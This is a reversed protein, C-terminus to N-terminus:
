RNFVQLSETVGDLSCILTYTGAPQEGLHIRGKNVGAYAQMYRSIITKGEANMIRVQMRGEKEANFTMNLDGPSAVPNPSLSIVLKTTAKTNKYLKTESIVQKGDRDVVVINYYFFRQNGIKNDSFSYARESTSNGAAPLTAIETYDSGDASRRVSFYNTKEESTTKWNLTVNNNSSELTFSSLKLPLSVQAVFSGAMSPAHPLCVYNYTGPVTVRYNFTQASSKIAADWTAAGAPLSTNPDQSADCTTTHNGSVWVYRVTDGVFVSMTSPSFQFNSVQVVHVTANSVVTLLLLVFSLLLNKKM